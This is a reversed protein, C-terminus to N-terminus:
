NRIVIVTIIIMVSVNTQCNLKAFTIMVIILSAGKGEQGIKQMRRISVKVIQRNAKVFRVIVIMVSARAVGQGM